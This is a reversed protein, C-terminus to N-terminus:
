QPRRYKQKKWIKRDEAALVKDQKRLGHRVEARLSKIVRGGPRPSRIMLWPMRLPATLNRKIAAIVLAAAKFSDKLIQLNRECEKPTTLFNFSACEPLIL